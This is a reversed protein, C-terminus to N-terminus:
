FPGAPAKWGLWTAGAMVVAFWLCLAVLPMVLVAYPRRSFWRCALVFQALWLLVLASVAWAPAVLASAGYLWLVTVLGAM